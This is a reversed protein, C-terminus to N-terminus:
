ESNMVLMLILREKELVDVSRDIRGEKAVRWEREQLLSLTKLLKLMDLFLGKETRM